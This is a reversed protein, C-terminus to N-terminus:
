QVFLKRGDPGHRNPLVERSESALGFGRSRALRMEKQNAGRSRRPAGAVLIDLGTPYERDPWYVRHVHVPDTWDFNGANWEDLDHIPPPYVWRQYQRAVVDIRPDPTLM